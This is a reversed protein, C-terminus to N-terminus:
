SSQGSKRNAYRLAIGGGILAVVVIGAMLMQFGTFPFKDREEGGGGPPSLLERVIRDLETVQPNPYAHIIPDNLYAELEEDTYNGDLRGNDLYDDLIDQPTAAQAIGALALVLVAALVAILTVRKM